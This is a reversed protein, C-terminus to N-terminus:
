ECRFISPTNNVRRQAMSPGVVCNNVRCRLRRPPVIASTSSFYRGMTDSIDEPAPPGESMESVGPAYEEVKATGGRRSRRLPSIGKTSALEKESSRGVSFDGTVHIYFFRFSHNFTWSGVEM